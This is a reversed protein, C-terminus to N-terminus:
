AQTQIRPWVVFYLSLGSGKGQGRGWSLAPWFRTYTSPSAHATVVVIFAVKALRVRRGAAAEARHGRRAERTASRPRPAGSRVRCSLDRDPGRLFDAAVVQGVHNTLFTRWTQSPPQRRRVMYTAVTTQCVEIGLKLLAGHIRPAGWRPNAHAM